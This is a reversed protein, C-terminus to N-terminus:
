YYNGDKFMSYNKLIDIEQYLPEEEVIQAQRKNQYLDQIPQKQAIENQMHICM